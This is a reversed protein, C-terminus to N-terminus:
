DLKASRFAHIDVIESAIALYFRTLVTASPLRSLGMANSRYTNLWKEDLSNQLSVSAGAAVQQVDSPSPAVVVEGLVSSRSEWRSKLGCLSINCLGPMKLVCVFQNVSQFTRSRTCKCRGSAPQRVDGVTPKHLIHQCLRTPALQRNSRCSLFAYLCLAPLGLGM